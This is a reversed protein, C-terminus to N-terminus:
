AARSRCRATLRGLVNSNFDAREFPDCVSTTSRRYESAEGATGALRADFNRAARGACLKYDGIRIAMIEGDDSFYMIANRPSKKVEGTLYPIM